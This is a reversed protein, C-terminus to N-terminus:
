GSHLGQFVRSKQNSCSHVLAPHNCLFSCDGSDLSHAFGAESEERSSFFYHHGVGGSIAGGPREGPNRIGSLCLVARPLTERWKRVLWVLRAARYHVDRGAAYGYVRRPCLWNSGSGFSDDLCWRTSVRSSLAASFSLGRDIDLHCKVGLSC